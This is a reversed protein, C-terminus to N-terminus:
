CAFDYPHLPPDAPHIWEPQHQGWRWAALAAACSAVYHDIPMKAAAVGELGQDELWRLLRRRASAEKKMSKIDKVSAGRLAMAAGPHVEVLSPPNPLGSLLRAVALGRLTLYAMRTMTPPMVSGAALGAQQIRQRLRRDAPRDGGGDNYSLPADIGVVVESYPTIPQIMQLLKTDSVDSSTTQLRLGAECSEFVTVATDAANSPGSLDIGVVFEITM